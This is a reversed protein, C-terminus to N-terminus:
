LFTKFDSEFCFLNFLLLIYIDNIEINFFFLFVVVIVYFCFLFTLLIFYFCMINYLYNLNLLCQDIIIKKNKFLHLM